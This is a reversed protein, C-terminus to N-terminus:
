KTEGTQLNNLQEKLKALFEQWEKIEREALKILKLIDKKNRKM